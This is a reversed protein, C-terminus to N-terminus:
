IIVKRFKFFFVVIVFFKSKGKNGKNVFGEKFFFLYIYYGYDKEFISVSLVIVFFFNFCFKIYIEYNKELNYVM